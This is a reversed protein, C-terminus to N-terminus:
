PAPTAPTQIGDLVVILPVGPRALIDDVTAQCKRAVLMIGQPEQTDTIKDIRRRFNTGASVKKECASRTNRGGPTPRRPEPICAAKSRGAQQSSKEALRVGEVTFLGLDDRYKKQRLAAVSKVLQNHQSTIVETM